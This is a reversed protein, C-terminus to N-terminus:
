REIKIIGGKIEDVLKDDSRKALQILFESAKNQKMLAPQSLNIQLPFLRCSLRDPYIELGVALGQQTDLSFYQDFIFNGLSYFILKGRYKEINQVVHPHHGIILDAGAEIIKYALKQQTQSNTLQYEEGWHISVILFNDPNLFKVTKIAKMMEEEKHIFPFIQNFALFTINDRIFSYSLNDSSDSFPNGVFAMGYKRLWKKTEALGEKGMDPTHNNALSFLNFHSRFIGKILEPNFAFKLSNTPFEPPNSVIPGELNGFVIDVGRLFQNIEQFPYYISNKRILGEVGRGLMIDGVLLITKIGSSFNELSLDSLYDASKDEGFVVSLYSTTEELELNLFDISDKYAIIHPVEKQRLKAFLRVAYLAQWCDVEINRFHEEEFNLLVRISTIDHFDAARSPLYHSFDVSAIVITDLLTNKNITKILGEMQEKTINAPILIPLINTEPLYKKIYSLLTIIGHDSTVASNNYIMKNEKFIKEWSLPEIKLNKFNHIDSDLKVTIFSNNEGLIGSKFHDPGLIVIIEPKGQSSIYSFFDEIIDKALLHHPVVGSVIDQKNDSDSAFVESINIFNLILTISLFIILIRIPVPSSERKEKKRSGTGRTIVLFGFLYALTALMAVVRFGFFLAIIVASVSAIISCFSNTAWLWPILGKEKGQDIISILRIGLPFPMGMLFGLPSILGVTILIKILLGYKLTDSFIHPLIIQYLILIVCLFLIIIKLNEIYNKEIKQSYLSGLGSFFLFSFIIISTSYAPNTLYLIFKQIFSIELLMYGLGLFAFYLLFPIKVKRKSIPLGKLILPLFIFIISFIIGQLFTAFIILNGWEILSQWNATSKIIKPINQWKLTYFFYPQNDTVASVNFFYSDYFDKLKDEKFSNILQDIEQYYYNQELIHNINADKEKIGPFYVTDFNRKDCFDKIIRIEEEGIEKKRLILTSTAWSRIIALHNEPKEIGMQKLTELSISCLRVIERPPFKLWRTISLNGGESLHQWFDIFGEITYLYNESISYFGGSATNSSGILSIQILDFKQDLGKLLSRGEGTLIKIGERNYINGSYNGYNNQLLIKINPNMEIGWIEEIDNYIGGLIDLGGGPGIILTKKDPNDLNGILHFGLASPLYDSFEIKRLRKLYDEGGLKTIANLGDGDTVLGLQEPIEGSFNLSLGPAYKVGESEVVELRSFCNERRDIIQSNPYRLLTFLSKYPNIPFFYFSKGGFFLIIFIFIGMVIYVFSRKDKLKLSFLFSALFSFLPPIILLHSLSIYNAIILFFICGISAGGLDCFYIKNVKEPLKSIALSICLGAFFFPTAIALYYIILYLLQYRDTTIRYLDFPIKSIIFLSFLSGLSFLLSFFFLYKYLKIGEAKKLLSSFVSLFTGSAGYGLFAISIIMFALYNWQLISFVRMLSLEFLLVSGSFFFIGLYLPFDNDKKAEVM